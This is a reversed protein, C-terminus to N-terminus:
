PTAPWVVFSFHYRNLDRERRKKKGQEGEKGEGREREKRREEKKGKGQRRKGKGWEEKGKGRRGRQGAAALRGVPWGAPRGTVPRHGALGRGEAQHQRRRRRFGQKEANESVMSYFDRAQPARNKNKIFNIKGTKSIKNCVVQLLIAEESM